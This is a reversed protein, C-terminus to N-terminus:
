PKSYELYEKIYKITLRNNIIKFYFRLTRSFVMDKWEKDRTNRLPRRM